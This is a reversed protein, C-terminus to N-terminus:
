LDEAQFAVAVPEPALVEVGPDAGFGGFDASGYGEGGEGLGESRSVVRRDLSGARDLRSSAAM